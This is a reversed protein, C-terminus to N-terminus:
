IEEYGEIKVIEKTNYLKFLLNGYFQTNIIKGSYTEIVDLKIIIKIDSSLNMNHMVEVWQDKIYAFKKSIYYFDTEDRFRIDIKRETQTTAYVELDQKRIMSLFNDAILRNNKSMSNRSSLFLHAEDILVVGNYMNCEIIDRVNIKKFPFKLSINSYVTKGSQYAEFGKKVLFLTKGSGQRGLILHLGM